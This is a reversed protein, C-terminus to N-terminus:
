GPRKPGFRRKLDVRIAIITCAAATALFTVFAWFLGELFLIDCDSADEPCSSDVRMFVFWPLVILALAYCIRRAVTASRQQEAALSEDDIM